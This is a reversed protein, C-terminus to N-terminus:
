SLLKEAVLRIAPGIQEAHRVRQSIGDACAIMLQAYKHPEEHGSEKLIRAIEGELWRELEEVEKAAHSSKASYLEDAYSSGELIRHIAKFKASLAGAIRETVAGNKALAKATITRLDVFIGALVACFIAHKDPFYGYLTPKAVEAEKAIAEMTAGRLGNRLFLKQGADVIRQRRENNVQKDRVVM